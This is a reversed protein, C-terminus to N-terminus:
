REKRRRLGLGALGLGLLALTAPEPVVSSPDFAQLNKLGNVGTDLFGSLVTGGSILTVSFVGGQVSFNLDTGNPSDFQTIFAFGNFVGNRYQVFPDGFAGPDGFHLSISGINFEFIDENDVGAIAGISAVNRTGTGPPIPVSSDFILNVGVPTPNLCTSCNFLLPDWGLNGVHTDNVFSLGGTVNASMYTPAAWAFAGGFLSLLMALAMRLLGSM